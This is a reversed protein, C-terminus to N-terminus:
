LCQDPGEYEARGLNKPEVKLLQRVGISSTNKLSPGQVGEVGRNLTEIEEIGTILQSQGHDGEIVIGPLNLEVKKWNMRQTITVNQLDQGPGTVGVIIQDKIGQKKQRITPVESVKLLLHGQDIERTIVGGKKELKM